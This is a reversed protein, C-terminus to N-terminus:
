KELNGCIKINISKMILILSNYSKYKTKASCLLAHLVNETILIVYNIQELLRLNNMKLHGKRWNFFTDVLSM